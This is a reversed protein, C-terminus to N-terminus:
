ELEFQNKGAACQLYIAVGMVSCRCFSVESAWAYNM